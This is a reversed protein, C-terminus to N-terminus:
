KNMETNSAGIYDVFSIQNHTTAGRRHLLLVDLKELKVVNVKKNASSYYDLSRTFYLSSANLLQLPSPPTRYLLIANSLEITTTITTGGYYYVDNSSKSPDRKGYHNSSHPVM